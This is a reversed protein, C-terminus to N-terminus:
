QLHKHCVCFGVTEVKSQRVAGFGHAEVGHVGVHASQVRQVGDVQRGVCGADDEGVEIRSFGGVVATWALM